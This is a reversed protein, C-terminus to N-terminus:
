YSGYAYATSSDTSTDNLCHTQKHTNAISSYPTNTNDPCLLSGTLGHILEFYPKVCYVAAAATSRTVAIYSYTTGPVHM